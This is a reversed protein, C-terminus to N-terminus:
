YLKKDHEKLSKSSLILNVIEVSERRRRLREEHHRETNPNREDEGNNGEVNSKANRSEREAVWKPEHRLTNWAHFLSYAKTQLHQFMAKAEV